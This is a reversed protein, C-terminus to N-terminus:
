RNHMDHGPTPRGTVRVPQRRHCHHPCRLLPVAPGPGAQIDINGHCYGCEGIRCEGSLGDAPDPLGTM